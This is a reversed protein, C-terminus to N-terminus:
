KVIKEFLDNADGPIFLSDNNDVMEPIGGINSAIVKLGVAKAELIVLPYNEYCLSPVILIDSGIMTEKLIKKELRGLFVIRNDGQALALAEKLKSGDGAIALTAESSARDRFAKILFLIGKHEEIQGVFLLKKNQKNIAQNDIQPPDLELINELKKIEKKSNSFFGRKKHENLLWNSPSIILEPSNVIVKTIFQYIKALLSDVKKEKGSMMLGSPHLLQIDHLFHHHKIGTRKIAQIVRLGLGMLNHTVILDPKETKLIKSIESYKRTSILDNLHWVFRACISKKDLNYFDSKIYFTKCDENLDLAPYKPKTSILIVEHGESKKRAIIAQVVKEAGGHNYPKYLNNLLCIKM